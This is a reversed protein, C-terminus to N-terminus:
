ELADHLSQLRPGVPRFANAPHVNDFCELLRLANSHVVMARLRYLRTDERQRCPALCRELLWEKLGSDLFEKCWRAYRPHRTDKTAPYM